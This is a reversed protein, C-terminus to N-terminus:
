HENDNWQAKKMENTDTSRKSKTQKRLGAAENQGQRKM